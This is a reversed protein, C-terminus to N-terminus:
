YAYLLPTRNGVNSRLTHSMLISCEKYAPFPAWTKTFAFVLSSAPPRTVVVPRTGVDGPDEINTAPGDVMRKELAAAAADDGVGVDM